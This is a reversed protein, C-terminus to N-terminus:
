ASKERGVAKSGYIHALPFSNQFRDKRLAQSGIKGGMGRQWKLQAIREM